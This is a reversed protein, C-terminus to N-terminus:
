PLEGASYASWGYSFFDSGAQFPNNGVGPQGTAWTSDTWTIVTSNNIKVVIQSGDAEVRVVDGNAALGPTATALPTFGNIPGSWLILNIGGNTSWYIEYGRAVNASIAFRILLSAEHGFTYGSARHITGQVYQRANFGQFAPNVIAISDNYPPPALEISTAGLLGGATQCNTWDLGTAGGNLWKGGQNIPNETASFDAVFSVPLALPKPDPYAANSTTGTPTIGQFAVLYFPGSGPNDFHYNGSGDSTTKAVFINSGALFLYVDCGALAVGTSDRTVANFSFNGQGGPSRYIVTGLSDHKAWSARRQDGVRALPRFITTLNSM